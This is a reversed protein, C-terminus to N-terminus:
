VRPADPPISYEWAGLASNRSIMIVVMNLEGIVGSRYIERAKETVISSVTQSGVQFVTGTKRQTEIVHAGAEISQVM